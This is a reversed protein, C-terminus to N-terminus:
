GANAAPSVSPRRQGALGAAASLALMLFFGLDGYRAYLTPAIPAPLVADIRGRANLPLRRLVRGHADIVASIGTNAVRILPLGEEIARFRAQALHQYPGSTSGFWGDNTINLLWEPRSPAAAVSGPFIAEYCILPSFPPTGTIAITRIGDGAAFNGPVTVVRRLGLPELWEAFPLYEGYPVLHWKDYVAISRGFGDIAFLSNHVAADAKRRRLSGMLLVSSDPLEDAIIALARPADDIYFPVSSEPWVIHTPPTPGADARPETSLTILDEFISAANESRWKESQPINPQILRVSVDEAVPAVANELRLHGALWLALTSLAAGSAFALYKRSPGAAAWLAPLMALLVVLFTLGWIGVYAAIQSLGDFAEAAYGIANWPFGTFLRGRLWESLSLLSALLLIRRLGPLWVISALAAAAGWYLAMGAPLAAVAIPMMWAYTEAEVLFAAGIWYLSALFYGFGFIWGVVFVNFAVRRRSMPNLFIGDILWVLVPFSLFLVPWFLLPQMAAAALAGSWFAVAARRWGRLLMVKHALDRILHRM